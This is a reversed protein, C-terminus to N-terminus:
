FLVPQKYSVMDNGEDKGCSSVSLFGRFQLSENGCVFVCVCTSVPFQLYMSLKLFLRYKPEIGLLAYHNLTGEVENIIKKKHRRVKQALNQEYSGFIPPFIFFSFHFYASKM